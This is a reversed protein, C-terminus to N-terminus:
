IKIFQKSLVAGELQLEVVYVGALLKGISLSENILKAVSLSKQFVVKGNASILRITVAQEKDLTCKINLIEKAPNPSLQLQLKEQMQLQNNKAKQVVVFRNEGKSLSDNTISFSYNVGATLETLINLFKDKLYFQQNDEKILEDVTLTFKTENANIIGLSIEQLEVSQRSDISLKAKDASLSYLNVSANFLKEGDFYDKNVDANKNLYITHYDWVVSDTTLKLSLKTNETNTTRFLSHTSSTSKNAENFVISGASSANVFFGSYAPLVYSSGFAINRYQGLTGLTADWVYFTSGVNNRTTANIDVPAPYPNGIFNYGNTGSRSLNITQTGTNVFGSLSLTTASPTYALGNLGEGLAGRVLVRVGEYSEWRNSLGSSTHTFPQWGLDNSGTGSGSVTNSYYFASPANTVTTTFGNTSGGTGTIDFANTLSNLYISTDSKLPHALFRFARKGPIYKEFTLRGSLTGNVPGLFATGGASSKLTINNNTNLIGNTVNLSNTIYLLGNVSLTAGATISINATTFSSVSGSYSQAGTGAFNINSSTNTAITGGNFTLNGYINLTAGSVTFTSLLGSKTLNRCSVTTGSTVTPNGSTITVDDLLGPVLGCSWNGATAWNSNVSGTWNNPNVTLSVSNTNINGCSNSVNCRYTFGNMASHAATLNLTATTANSYIGGNTINAFGAGTNVQWQYSLSTGTAAVSFSTNNSTCVTANSPQTGISPATCPATYYVGLKTDVQVTTCGSQYYSLRVQGTFTATWSIQSQQGCFDDNYTILTTGASNYLSLVTNISSNEAFCTRFVYTNGSVVNFLYYDGGWAAPATKENAVGPQSPIDFGIFFGTNNWTGAPCQAGVICINVVFTVIVVLLSKLM